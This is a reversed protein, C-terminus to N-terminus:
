NPNNGFVVKFQHMNSFYSYDVQSKTVDAIKKVISLGLGSGPSTRSERHFRNFLKEPHELPPGSNLIVFHTTDYQIRIRGKAPSHKLANSILNNVLSELLIPNGFLMAHEDHNISIDLNKDDMLLTYTEIAKDVIPKLQIKETDLFHQNEIKSLLLLDKNLKSIRDAAQLLNSILESQEATLEPTQALLEM